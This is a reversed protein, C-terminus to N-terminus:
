IYVKKKMNKSQFSLVHLRRLRQLNLGSTIDTYNYLVTTLSTQLFDVLGPTARTAAAIPVLPGSTQGTRKLALCAGSLIIFVLPMTAAGRLQSPSLPNYIGFCRLATNCPWLRVGLLFHLWPRTASRLLLSSLLWGCDSSAPTKAAAMGRQRAAATSNRSSWCPHWASIIHVAGGRGQSTM